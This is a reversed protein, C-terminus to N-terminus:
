RMTASCPRSVVSPAPRGSISPLSRPAASSISAAGRVAREDDADQDPRRDDHLLHLSDVITDGVVHVRKGALRDLTRRLMDFSVGETDMLTLLKEAELGAAGADILESSSYVIDGPTFIMEGGILRSPMSRKRPRQGLLAPRTTNTARPSITRSSRGSIKLRRPTRTSSSTTSWRSRRWISRACIRRFTRATTARRIHRDATLSAVLIPAKSKAYLLHRIHGPHVIDFVGHCMIVKQDRPPAGLLSRLEAATKVKHRYKSLLSITMATGIYEGPMRVWISFGHGHRRARDVRPGLAARRALIRHRGAHPRRGGRLQGKAALGLGRRIRAFTPSPAIPSAPASRCTADGRRGAARGASQRDAARGRRSELARRCYRDRGGGPFGRAVDTVYVFDRTQTGDGVVTFPKGALKQRLFVGFVAGYAGTTRSRPGYANFIRISNVPLGISRIGTSPRRSARISPCRTLTNRRSRTTKALRRIAGPWLLVVLRRLRVKRVGAHRACELVRVTGQVNTSMYEIPREISPVIDGIGAFHFVYARRTSSRRQRSRPRPYRAMRRVRSRSQGRHHALNSRHGGVLNDIVRVAYGATSCCISWTAASSAPAAPSSRSRDHWRENPAQHKKMTRVNYYCDDDFSDPMCTIASARALDRVADEITRKRCSAWCRPRDQRFQHPLLPIDDTPTTVITSRAADRADGGRRGEEGARRDGRDFPEPLRYQLDRGPDERAAGRADARYVDVMDEVHLNPRMQAGGFM